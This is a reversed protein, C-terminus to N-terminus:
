PATEFAAVYGQIALLDGVLQETTRSPEDTATSPFVALWASSALLAGGDHAAPQPSAADVARKAQNLRRLADALDLRDFFLASVRLPLSRAPATPEFPPPQAYQLQYPREFADQRAGAGDAAAWAAEAKVSALLSDARAAKVVVVTELSMDIWHVPPTAPIEITARAQETTPIAKDWSGHVAVSAHVATQFEKHVVEVSEVSRIDLSAPAYVSVLLSRVRERQPDTGPVLLSKVHEPVLYRLMLDDTFGNTAAM